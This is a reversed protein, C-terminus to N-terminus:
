RRGSTATSEGQRGWQVFFLGLVTTLVASAGTGVFLMNTRLQASSGDRAGEASPSGTFTEYKHQTDLASLVAGTGVLATVSVGVWFWVPSAGRAAPTTVGTPEAPSGLTPSPRATVAVSARPEVRVTFVQRQGATDFVVRHEGIPTWTPKGVLLPVREDMTATCSTGASCSATLRGVHAGLKVRAAEAAAALAPSAPRLRARDVLEMGLLASNSKVSAKLALELAVDNPVLADARALLFAAHEYEGADYEKAGQDYAQKAAALAEDARAATTSATVVVAAAIAVVVSRSAM